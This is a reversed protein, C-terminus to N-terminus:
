VPKQVRQRTAKSLWSVVVPGLIVWCVRYGAAKWVECSPRSLVTRCRTNTHQKEKEALLVCVRAREEVDM